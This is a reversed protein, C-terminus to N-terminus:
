ASIKEAGGCVFHETKQMKVFQILHFHEIM